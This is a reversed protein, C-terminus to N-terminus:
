AGGGQRGAQAFSAFEFPNHASFVRVGPQTRILERLRSQNHLRQTRNTENFFQFVELLCSCRRLDGHVERHDFYADGAHLIWTDDAQIAVASHGRTHGILPVFLIEPPLGQLGRVADFGHWREGFEAYEVFDPQHEFMRVPYRKRSVLTPRSRAFALEERHVHVKANPFDVLGGVHDLDLHTLVIHTVDGPKFGLQHIQHVAALSPNRQPRAYGYTFSPGLRRVPNELDGLGLGTDVLVLGSRPTEILLCHCVLHKGQVSLGGITGCNLHHIHMASRGNSDECTFGHVEPASDVEAM